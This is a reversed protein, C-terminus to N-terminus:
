KNQQKYKEINIYLERTLFFITPNFMLRTLAGENPFQKEDYFIPDGIGGVTNYADILLLSTYKLDELNRECDNRLLRNYNEDLMIITRRIFEKYTLVKADRNELLHSHPIVGDTYLIKSLEKYDKKRELDPISTM